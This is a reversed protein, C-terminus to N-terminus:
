WGGGGGHLLEWPACSLGSGAAAAVAAVVSAATVAAAAAATAVAGALVGDESRAGQPSAEARYEECFLITAEEGGGGSDRDLDTGGGNSDCM